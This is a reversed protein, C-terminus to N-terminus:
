LTPLRNVRAKYTPRNDDDTDNIVYKNIYKIKPNPPLIIEGRRLHRRKEDM